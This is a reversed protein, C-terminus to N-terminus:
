GCTGVREPQEPGEELGWRVETAHRPEPEWPTQAPVKAFVRSVLGKSACFPWLICLFLVPVDFGARQGKLSAIFEQTFDSTFSNFYIREGRYIRGQKIVDNSLTFCM